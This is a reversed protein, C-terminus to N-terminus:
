AVKRAWVLEHGQLCPVAALADHLARWRAVRRALPPLLSLRVGEIETAQPLAERLMASTWPRLPRDPRVRRMDYSVLWGGPALVRWIESLIRIRLADDLVSSLMTWQGVWAFHGDPWPLRTADGERVDAGPLLARADQVRDPLLDVGHLHREDWGMDRLRALERGTGCGVELMRTGPGLARRALGEALRQTREATRLRQDPADEAYLAALPVRDAYVRQIRAVEAATGGEGTRRGPEETM